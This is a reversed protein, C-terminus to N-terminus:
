IEKTQSVNIRINAFDASIIKVIKACVHGDGYINANVNEHTPESTIAKLHTLINAYDTGIIKALGALIGEPRDTENRLVLVKKGLCIAEEQIGGSDTAVYDSNM